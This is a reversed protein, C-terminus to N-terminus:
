PSFDMAEDGEDGDWAVSHGLIEELWGDPAGALASAQFGSGIRNRLAEMLDRVQVLVPHAAVMDADVRLSPDSRMMSKLLSVFDDSLDSFDVQSFDENRLRHWAEGRFLISM